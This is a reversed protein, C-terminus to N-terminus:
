ILTQICYSYVMTAMYQVLTLNHAYAMISYTVVIRLVIIKYM